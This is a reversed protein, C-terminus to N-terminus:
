KRQIRYNNGSGQPSTSALFTPSLSCLSWGQLALAEEPALDIGAKEQSEDYAHMARGFCWIHSSVVLCQLKGTAVSIWNTSYNIDAYSHKLVGWPLTQELFYVLEVRRRCLHATKRRFEDTLTPPWALGAETFASLHDSEWM